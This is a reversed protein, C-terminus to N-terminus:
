IVPFCSLGSSLIKHVYEGLILVKEEMIVIDNEFRVFYYNQSHNQIYLGYQFIGTIDFM